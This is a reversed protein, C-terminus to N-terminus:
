NQREIMGKPKAFILVDGARKEFEVSTKAEGNLAYATFTRNRIDLRFRERRNNQYTRAL